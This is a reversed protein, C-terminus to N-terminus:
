WNGLAKWARDAADVSARHAQVAPSADMAESMAQGCGVTDRIRRTADLAPLRTQAVLAEAAALTPSTKM